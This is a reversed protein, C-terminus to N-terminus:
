TPPGGGAVPGRPERGRRLQQTAAGARPFVHEFLLDATASSKHRADEGGRAEAGDGGAVVFSARLKSASIGGGPHQALCKLILQLKAQGGHTATLAPCGLLRLVPRGSNAHSWRAGILLLTENRAFKQAGISVGDWVLSFDSAVGLGPLPKRLVDLTCLQVLGMGLSECSEAFYRGHYRTGTPVGALQLRSIASSYDVESGGRFANALCERVLIKTAAHRDKDGGKDDRARKKCGRRECRLIPVSPIWNTAHLKEWTTKVIWVPLGLM